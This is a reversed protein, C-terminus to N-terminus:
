PAGGPGIELDHGLGLQALIRPRQPITLPEDEHELLAALAGRHSELAVQYRNGLGAVQRELLAIRRAEM